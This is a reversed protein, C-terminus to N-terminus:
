GLLLWLWFAYTIASLAHTLTVGESALHADGGLQGAMIVSITATPAALLIVTVARAPDGVGALSLLIFGLAPHVMLKMTALLSHQLWNGGLRGESLKAGIILLALPLGMGGLIGLTRDVLQPMALGALPFVLGLASALIIPNMLLSAWASKGSSRGSGLRTLSLVSLFNQAIIVVAAVLAAANLGAQGLAYFVVALGIFAQNGHLSVQVWSARSPQPGGTKPFLRSSLAMALLWSLLLTAVSALAATPQFAEQWPSNAVARLILAPIALWYALRSAPEIFAPPFLGRRAGLFGLAMVVFIPLISLAVTM